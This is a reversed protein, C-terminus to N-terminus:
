KDMSLSGSKGGMKARGQITDRYLLGSESFPISDTVCLTAKRHSLGLYDRPVSKSFDIAPKKSISETPSSNTVHQFRNELQEEAWLNEIRASQLGFNVVHTM